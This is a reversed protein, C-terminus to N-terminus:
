CWRVASCEMEGFPLGAGTLEWGQGAGGGDGGVLGRGTRCTDCVRVGGQPAEQTRNGGQADHALAAHAGREQERGPSVGANRTDM